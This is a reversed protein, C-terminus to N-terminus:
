LSFYTSLDAVFEVQSM